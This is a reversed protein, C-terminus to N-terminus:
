AQGALQAQGTLIKRVAERTKSTVGCQELYEEIGGFRTRIHFEVLAVLNPDCDAFEDTLGISHVELLKDEREVMLEAATRMYDAQISHLPTALLMLVLQVVLGTRDKGQTCHVLIPYRTEDALIEFVAKVETRCVELSDIALGALGRPRMVNSALISIAELRRGLAMLFILKLFSLWDLQALMFRSYASGNFNVDAYSM